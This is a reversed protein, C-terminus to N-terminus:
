SIDKRMNHEQLYSKTLNLKCIAEFDLEKKRVADKDPRDLRAKLHSFTRSLQQVAVKGTKRGCYLRLPLPM